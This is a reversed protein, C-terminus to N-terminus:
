RRHAGGEADRQFYGVIWHGRGFPAFLGDFLQPLWCRAGGRSFLEAVPKITTLGDYMFPYYVPHGMGVTFLRLCSFGANEATRRLAKPTFGLLHFGPSMPVALRDNGRFSRWLNILSYLAPRANPVIVMVIGGDALKPALGSLMGVPDSVHELVHSLRIMGQSSDAVQELENVYSLGFATEALRAASPNADLGLTTWGRRRAAALFLGMGAGVDLVSHVSALTEAVAVQRDLFPALRALSDKAVQGNRRLDDAYWDGDTSPLNRIRSDYYLLGCAPCELLAEGGAQGSRKGEGCGNPCINMPLGSCDSLQPRRRASPSM